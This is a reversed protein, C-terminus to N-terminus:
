GIRGERGEGARIARVLWELFSEVEPPGAVFFAASTEDPKGVKITVGDALARFMTEDTADDGIAIAVADAPGLRERILRSAAGKDWAIRPVVELVKKGERIRVAERLAGAERLVDQVVRRVEEIRGPEVNRFHVSLTWRKDEVRAGTVGQLAATLAAGIETIAGGLAAARPELFDLGPGSIQIGHNGAYTLGELAVRARIDELSRGSVVAVSARELGAVKALLRRTSPPLSAEEPTRVIPALTGDFDSILIVGPAAAVRAEIETL